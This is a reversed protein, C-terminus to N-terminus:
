GNRSRRRALLEAVSSPLPPGAPTPADPKVIVDELNKFINLAESAQAFTCHDPHLCAMIMRFERRTIVGRHSAIIKDAEVIRKNHAQIYFDYEEHLKAKVEATIVARAQKLAADYRQRMTPAMQEPALPDIRAEAAEALADLRAREAAAVLQITSKSTGLEKALKDRNIREGREVAARVAERAVDSQPTPSRLRKKPTPTTNSDDSPERPVNWSLRFETRYIMELSNRKTNELCKRLEEPERGMKICAARTETNLVSKGFGNTECWRGFEPDSPFQDRAEVLTACKGIQIEVWEERNTTERALYDRLKDALRELPTPLHLVNDEIM